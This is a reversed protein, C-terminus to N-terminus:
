TAAGRRRFRAETGALLRKINSRHNFIVFLAVCIAV